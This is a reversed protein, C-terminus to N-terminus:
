TMQNQLYKEIRALDEPTDVDDGYPPALPVLNKTGGGLAKVPPQRWAQAARGAFVAPPQSHGQYATKTVGEEAQAILNQIHHKPLLPMDGLLVMFNPLTGRKAARALAALAGCHISFAQGRDPAPNIVIEFGRHMFIQARLGRNDPLVAIKRQFGVAEGLAAAYDALPRGALKATLKDQAGFRRSFGSAPVILTLEHPHM